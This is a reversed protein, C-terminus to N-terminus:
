SRPSRSKSQADYADVIRAVLPHRVVDATTFRSVAIGKVRKLVREADVLGSLSGKPLDVQSVDGTVVAKAGFGIRTLFMKMQEPTTNQAEDLIVFANNLTRGRMFALPAIELQNREFAKQVKDFGMLEYLADYLPRLYPDVKQTLDGPLFGLREGAEVAPRTLVIRQVNSRELADVACAVALYTKGTGAPGIGFTIDHSAINELYTNQTPTRARLDARRTSLLIANDPSGDELMDSDSALMLQLQEEKIPRDAMEYLAQLLEMAQTAKAKPGDVKFQEHRHAIKVQLAAEITRLHADAPGCLNTLRTNNHPTFTHRQIM